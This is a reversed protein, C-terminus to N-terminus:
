FDGAQVRTTELVKHELHIQGDATEVHHAMEAEQRGGDEGVDIALHTDRGRNMHQGLAQFNGRMQFVFGFLM